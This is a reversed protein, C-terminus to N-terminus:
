MLNLTLKGNRILRQRGLNLDFDTRLQEGNKVFKLLLENIIHCCYYCYSM